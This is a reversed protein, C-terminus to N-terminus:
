FITNVEAVFFEFNNITTSKVFFSSLLHLTKGFLKEALSMQINQKYSANIGHIALGLHEFWNESNSYCRLATKIYNNFNEAAGNAQCHYATIFQHKVNLFTMFKTWTYSTFFSVNVTVIVRPVSLLAVYQNLFYTAINDSKTDPLAIAFCDKTFRDLVTLIYGCGKSVPLSVIIDINLKDFAQNPPPYSKIPTQTHQKTKVSQCSQCQNVRQKVDKNLSPWFYKQKLMYTFSKIGVHNLSHITDFAKRRFAAPLLVRPESQSVDCLIVKNSNEIPLSKIQLSSIRKYMDQIESNSSQADAIKEFDLLTNLDHILAVGTRTLADAVSNQDSAIYECGTTYQFIFQLHRLVRASLNEGNKKTLSKVVAQNDCLIKFPRM